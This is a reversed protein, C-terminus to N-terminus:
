RHRHKKAHIDDETGSKGDPGRSWVRYGGERDNIHKYEYPSEWPDSLEGDLYIEDASPDSLEELRDPYGANDLLYADLATQIAAIQHEAARTRGENVSEEFTDLSRVFLVLLVIYIAIGLSSLVGGTVAFAMGGSGRKAGIFGIVAMVLTVLCLLIGIIPVWFLLISLIGLIFAILAVTNSQSRRTAVNATAAYEYNSRPSSKSFDFPSAPEEVRPTFHETFEDFVPLQFTESCKKCRVTKGSLSPPVNAVELGCYPCSFGPM